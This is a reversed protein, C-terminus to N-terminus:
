LNYSDPNREEETLITDRNYTALDDKIYFKLGSERCIAVAKVIFDNWDINKDWDGYDNIKGIKVYHVFEVQKLLNLSQEPYIVPEFSVWTKIGENALRRLSEIREHPLAAGPEWKRSDTDNDFTLSTGVIIRPINDNFLDRSKFKKFLDIDNFVHNGGKTLISVKHGYKNLITLVRSTVEPYVGCYPDNLFSLLIQKGKGKFKKAHDEIIEFDENSPPYFVDHTIQGMGEVYCYICNHPCKGKFYNLALPSYERARSKPEYIKM